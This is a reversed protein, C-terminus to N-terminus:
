FKGFNDYWAWGFMISMKRIDDQEHRPKWSFIKGITNILIASEALTADLSLGDAAHKVGYCFLSRIANEKLAAIPPAIKVCLEPPRTLHCQVQDREDMYTRSHGRNTTLGINLRVIRLSQKTAGVVPGISLRRSSPVLYSVFDGTFVPTNTNDRLAPRALASNASNNQHTM